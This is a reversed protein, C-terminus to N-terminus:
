EEPICLLDLVFRYHIHRPANRREKRDNRYSLDITCSHQTGHTLRTLVCLLINIRSQTNIYKYLRHTNHIDMYGCLIVCSYLYAMNFLEVRSM